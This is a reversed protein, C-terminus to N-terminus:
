YSIQSHSSNLRTSKRDAPQIYAWSPVARHTKHATYQESPVHCLPTSEGILQNVPWCTGCPSHHPSPPSFRPILSHTARHTYTYGLLFDFSNAGVKSLGTSWRKCRGDQGSEM